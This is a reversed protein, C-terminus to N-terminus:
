TVYGSHDRAGVGEGGQLAVLEVQGDHAAADGACPHREVGGRAAVAHRQELAVVVGRAGRAAGRLQNVAAQAVELAEVEAENALGQQLARQHDLERGMEDPRQRHQHGGELALAGVAQHAHPQVHVVHHRPAAAAVAARPLVALRIPAGLAVADHVAGLCDLQHRSEGLALRGRRIEEVVALGVVRAQHEGHEALGLAEAGHAGVAAIDGPQDLAGPAGGPYEHAVGLAAALELHPGGVHHVGRAHPGVPQAGVLQVPLLLHRANAGAAARMDHDGALGQGDLRAHDNWRGPAAGDEHQGPEAPREDAGGVVVVVARELVDRWAVLVDVVQDARDVVEEGGREAAAVERAGVGANTRQDRAAVRALRHVDRALCLEVLRARSEDRDGAALERGPAPHGLERHVPHDLPLSALGRAAGVLDRESHGLVKLRKRADLAHVGLDALVQGRAIPVGGDVHQLKRRLRGPQGAPDTRACGVDGGFRREGRPALLDAREGVHQQAPRPQAQGV